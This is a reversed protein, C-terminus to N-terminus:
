SDKRVETSCLGNTVAKNIKAICVYDRGDLRVERFADEICLGMKRLYERGDDLLISTDSLQFATASLQLFLLQITRTVLQSFECGAPTDKRIGELRIVFENLVTGLNRMENALRAQIDASEM